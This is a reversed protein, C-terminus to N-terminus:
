CGSSSGFKVIAAQATKMPFTFSGGSPTLVDFGPTGTPAGATSSEFSQFRTGAYNGFVQVGSLSSFAPATLYCVSATTATGAVIINGSKTTERNVVILRQNNGGDLTSWAQVNASTSVSVPFIAASGSIAREFFIMGDYLPAIAPNRGNVTALSFAGRGSVTISLPNYFTYSTGALYSGQINIGDVGEAALNMANELFWLASEFANSVGRTGGGSLSNMENVRFAMGLAHAAQMKPLLQGPGSYASNTLLFGSVRRSGTYYHGSAIQLGKGKSAVLIDPINAIFSGSHGDFTGFSPGIMVKSCNQASRIGALWRALETYYVNQSWGPTRYFEPENGIEFGLISDSPMGACYSSAQAQSAALNATLLNVGFTFKSGTATAFEKMPQVSQIGTPTSCPSGTDTSNGGVRIYMPGAGYARLNSVMQAAIPDAGGTSAQGLVTQVNCWEMALGLFNAPVVASAKTGITATALTAADVSSALLLVTFLFRM